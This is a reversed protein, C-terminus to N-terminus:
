VNDNGRNGGFPSYAVDCQISIASAGISRLERAVEDAGAEDVDAIGVTAGQQALAKAFAKGMGKAGGTIM